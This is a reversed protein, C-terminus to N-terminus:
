FPAPDRYALGHDRIHRLDYVSQLQVYDQVDGDVGNDRTPTSRQLDYQYEEHQTRHVAAALDTIDLNWDQYGQAITMLYGNSPAGPPDQNMVYVMFELGDSQITVKRYLYPYGEFDDLAREDQESIAWLAGPVVGQVDSQITAVGSFALRWGELHFPQIAVADPCRYGMNNINLNAGYAFYLKM